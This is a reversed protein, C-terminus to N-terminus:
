ELYKGEVVAVGGIQYIIQLAVTTPVGDCEHDRGEKALMQCTTDLAM